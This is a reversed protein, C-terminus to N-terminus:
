AAARSPGGSLGGGPRPGGGAGPFSRFPRWRDSDKAAFSRAAPQSSTPLLGPGAASLRLSGTAVQSSDSDGPPGPVESDSDFESSSKFGAATVTVTVASACRRSGDGSPPWTRDARGHSLPGCGIM